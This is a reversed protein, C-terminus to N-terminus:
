RILWWFCWQGVIQERREQLKKMLMSFTIQENLRIGSSCTCKVSNAVRLTRAEFLSSDYRMWLPLFGVDGLHNRIQSQSLKQILRSYSHNLFMSSNALLSWFNSVATATTVPLMEQRVLGGVHASSFLEPVPAVSIKTWNTTCYLSELRATGKAWQHRAM